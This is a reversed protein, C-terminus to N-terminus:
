GEKERKRKGGRIEVVREEMGKGVGSGEVVRFRGVVM